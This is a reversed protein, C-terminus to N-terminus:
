RRLDYESKVCEYIKKRQEDSFIVGEARYAKLIGRYCHNMNDSRDKDKIEFYVVRSEESHGLRTWADRPVNEKAIRTSLRDWFESDEAGWNEFVEDWGGLERCVETPAIVSGGYLVSWKLKDKFQSNLWPAAPEKFYVDGDLFAVYPTKVLALGRNRPKCMSFYKEGAVRIVPITSFHKEVWEGSNQPCSWDVFILNFGLSLNQPLTRQIHSLRGMCMTVVTVWSVDTM